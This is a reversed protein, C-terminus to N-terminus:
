DLGARQLGMSQLWGPEPNELCSYQLPNGNEEGYSRGLGPVTGLDGASCTSGKGRLWWPLGLEGLYQSFHCRQPLIKIFVAFNIRRGFANNNSWKYKPVVDSTLFSCHYSQLYFGVLAQPRRPYGLGCCRETGLDPRSLASSCSMLPFSSGPHYQLHLQFSGYYACTELVVPQFYPVVIWNMESDVLFKWYGWCFSHCLSSNDAVPLIGCGFHLCIPGQPLFPLPVAVRGEATHQIDPGPHPPTLGGSFGFEGVVM